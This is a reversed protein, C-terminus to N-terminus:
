EHLTRLIYFLRIQDLQTIIEHVSHLPFQQLTPSTCPNTICCWIAPTCPLIRLADILSPQCTSHPPFLYNTGVQCSTPAVVSYDYKQYLFLMSYRDAEDLIVIKHRGPPLTVKKQAFMKIKNRM